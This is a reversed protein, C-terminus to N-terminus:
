DASILILIAKVIYVLRNYLDADEGGWGWYINSYGNVQDMQQPRIALVGGTIFPTLRCHFLHIFFYFYLKEKGNISNTKPYELAGAAAVSLM